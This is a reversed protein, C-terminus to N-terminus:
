SKTATGWYEYGALRPVGDVYGSEMTVIRFGAQQLYNPIPRDLHCGGAVKKWLPAIRRQWKFISEDPAAGHECFILKGEPKLVRRMECLASQWDPITCLTFTLLVTDVAGDDLPIESASLPLWQVNIAARELNKRATRRMAASPELGWVLDVKNPAYYPLNLAAGMGVELVRGEALPVVKQRQQVIPKLSCAWNILHPLCYKEYINMRCVSAEGAGGEVFGCYDDFFPCM